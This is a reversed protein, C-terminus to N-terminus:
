DFENNGTGDIGCFCFPFMVLRTFNSLFVLCCNWDFGLGAQYM